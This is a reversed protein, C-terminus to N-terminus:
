CLVKDEAYADKPSTGDVRQALSASLHHHENSASGPPRGHASASGQATRVDPIQAQHSQLLPFGILKFLRYAIQFDHDTRFKLQM